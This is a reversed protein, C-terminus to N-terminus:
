KDESKFLLSVFCLIELYVTMKRLCKLIEGKDDLMFGIM